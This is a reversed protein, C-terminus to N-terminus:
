YHRQLSCIWVLPVAGFMQQTPLPVCGFMRQTPDVDEDGIGILAVEVVANCGFVRDSNKKGM